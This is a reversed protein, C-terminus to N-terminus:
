GITRRAKGLGPLNPLYTDQDGVNTRSRGAWGANMMLGTPAISEGINLEENPRKRSRLVNQAARTTRASKTGAKNTDACASVGSGAAGGAM